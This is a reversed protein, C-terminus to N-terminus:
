PISWGRVFQAVGRLRHSNDGSVGICPVLYVGGVAVACSELRLELFSLCEGSGVQVAGKAQM